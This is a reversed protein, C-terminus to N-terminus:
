SIKNKQMYFYYALGSLLQFAAAIIISPLVGMLRFMPVCAFGALTSGLTNLVMRGATYQGMTRFDAIKTVAVPVANGIITVLFFSIGYFLLYGTTTKLLFMMPMFLFVAISSILITYKDSYRGALWAYVANAGIVVLNSIVVLISASRSDLYGAYYGITVAMNIIGLNFGRILNPIILASFTKDTLFHFKETKATASNPIPQIEKYSHLLFIYIPLLALSIWYIVQMLPIFSFRTQLSSLLTSALFCFVGILVGSRAIVKGYQNMDMILYPVKYSFINALGVAINFFIGTALLGVYVAPRITLRFTCLLILSLILPITLWHCHAYTKILNKVKDAYSASLIITGVQVFQMIAFFQNTRDESLGTELLVTQLISGGAVMLILNWVISSLYLKKINGM